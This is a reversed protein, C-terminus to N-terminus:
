WGLRVITISCSGTGYRYCASHGEPTFIDIRGTRSLGSGGRDVVTYNVGDVKIVSGMPLWNCAIYHPNPMGNYIRKGSSTTGAGAGNCTSCACYHTYRGTIKQGLTFGNKSTVGNPKVEPDVSKTGVKVVKNKAKKTVVKSVVTKSEEKGNVMKVQYTIKKKGNAGKKVVKTKGQELNKDKKKVTKFKIKKTKTVKKYSVRFVEVKMGAKLATNKAPKTYDNKGLKIGALALLDKVTGVTKAYKVTKGDAKLSVSPAKKIEVVMGAAVPADFAYNMATKDPVNLGIDSVAEGVTTAYTYFSQVNGAFKVSVQRYRDVVITGGEGAVFDSVSMKDNAGLPACAEALVDYPETATTSVTTATGGDVITVEYQSLTDAFVTSTVTTVLMIVALVLCIIKAAKNNNMTNLLKKM